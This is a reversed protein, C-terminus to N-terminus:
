RADPPAATMAFAFNETDTHLVAPVADPLHPQLFQMVQWEREIRAPDSFWAERTRLRPPSQKIVFGGSATEVRFVVGSVGGALAQVRATETALWGRERLFSLLNDATLELM